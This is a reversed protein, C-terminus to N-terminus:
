LFKGLCSQYGWCSHMNEGGENSSHWLDTKKGAWLFHFSLLFLATYALKSQSSLAADHRCHAQLLWLTSPHQDKSYSGSSSSNVAGGRGFCLLLLQQSTYIWPYHYPQMMDVSCWPSMVSHSLPYSWHAQLSPMDQPCSSLGHILSVFCLSPSGISMTVPMLFHPHPFPTLFPSLFPPSSHASSLPHPFSMLFPCSSLAHPWPCSAMPMLFSHICRGTSCEKTLWCNRTSCEKTLWCNGTSTRVLQRSAQFFLKPVDVRICSM